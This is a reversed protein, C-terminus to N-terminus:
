LGRNAERDLMQQSVESHIEVGQSNNVIPSGIVDGHFNQTLSVYSPFHQTPRNPFELSQEMEKIGHHTLLVIGPTYSGVPTGKTDILGEGQLYGCLDGMEQDSLGLEAMHPRPDVLVNSRGQADEFLANLLRLRDRKRKALDIM